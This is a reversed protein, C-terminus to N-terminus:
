DYKVSCGYPKTNAQAVKRGASIDALADTVYNDAKAIDVPDSSAISDIGGKYVLTGQKDVIFLHPTTQAGYAKGISGDADLVTAAPQAQRYENLKRATAGDVYGQKGPASSIIQVWTVGDAAAQQQLKPINGSEYHKKVFPCDANTWELVVTKGRLSELSVTKGDAGKGAFVPAPQGINAAALALGSSLALAVGFATSKMRRSFSFRTLSM